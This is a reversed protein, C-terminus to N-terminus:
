AKFNLKLQECYEMFDCKYPSLCYEGMEIKPEESALVTKFKQILSDIDKIREELENKVDIINGENNEDRLVVNFTNIATEGFKQKCIFYQIALDNWIVDQMYIHSKIEYFDYLNESIKDVVDCMVLIDSEIFTAEFLTIKENKKLLFDTYSPFYGFNFGLNEKVNIGNEFNQERFLDEFQHGKKFLALTKASPPTREKKKHKDLYLYKVCQKGKVFSSKSLNWNQFELASQSKNENKEQKEEEKVENIKEELLSILHLPYKENGKYQKLKKIAKKYNTFSLNYDKMEFAIKGLKISNSDIFKIYDNM